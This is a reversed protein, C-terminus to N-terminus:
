PPGMMFRVWGTFRGPIFSSGRRLLLKEPTSILWLGLIELESCGRREQWRKKEIEEKADIEAMNFPNRVFTLNGDVFIRSM